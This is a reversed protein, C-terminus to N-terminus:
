TEAFVALDKFDGVWTGSFLAFDQFDVYCDATLDGVIPGRCEYITFAGSMDPGGEGCPSILLRSEESTVEPLVWNYTGSNPLNQAVWVWNSGNDASYKINVRPVYGDWTWWRITYTQGAVLNEGGNPQELQLDAPEDTVQHIIQVDYIVLNDLDILTLSVDGVYQCHFEIGDVLVGELPAPPLHDDLLQVWALDTLDYGVLEGLVFLMEGPTMGFEDAIEELDWYGSLNGLYLIEGGDIAGPREVLLGLVVPSTTQGDGTIGLVVHESPWLVIESDGPHVVGNVSIWLGGNATSAMVLISLIVPLKKM